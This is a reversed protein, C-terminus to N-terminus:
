RDEDKKEMERLALTQILQTLQRRIQELRVYITFLAYLLFLISVAFLLDVPRGVGFWRTLRETLEPRWSVLVIGLWLALWGLLRPLTIHGDKYRVVARALVVGVFITVFIPFM